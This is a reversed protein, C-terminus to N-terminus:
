VPANIIERLYEKRLYSLDFYEKFILGEFDARFAKDRDVALIKNKLVNYIFSLPAHNIIRVDAPMRLANELEKEIELELVVSKEPKDRVYVAVDIDRFSEATVFSGFLYAFLIYEKEALLGSVTETLRGKETRTMQRKQM